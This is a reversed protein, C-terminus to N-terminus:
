IGTNSWKTSLTIGLSRFRGRRGSVGEHAVGYVEPDDTRM